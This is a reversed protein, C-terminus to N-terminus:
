AVTPARLLKWAPDEFHPKDPTKWRGGWTLGISEGIAGVKAWPLSEDWSIGGSATKFAFDVAMGYNHASNGGRVWTVISGPTTRGQEYLADQEAQSRYGNTIAISLGAAQARAIVQEVKQRFGARLSGLLKKERDSLILKRVAVTAGGGLFLFLAGLGLLWWIRNGSSTAM